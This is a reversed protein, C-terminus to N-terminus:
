VCVQRAARPPSAGGYLTSLGVRVRFPIECHCSHSDARIGMGVSRPAFTAHPAVFRRGAPTPLGWRARCHPRAEPVSHFARSAVRWARGRAMVTVRGAHGLRLVHTLPPGPGPRPVRAIPHRRSSMEAFARFDSSRLRVGRTGHSTVRPGSVGRRRGAGRVAAGPRSCLWPKPFMQKLGSTVRGAPAQM